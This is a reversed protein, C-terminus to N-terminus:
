SVESHHAVGQSSTESRVIGAWFLASLCQAVSETSRGLSEALDWVCLRSDSEQLRALLEAWWSNEPTLPISTLPKDRKQVQIVSSRSSLSLPVFLRVNRALGVPRDAGWWGAMTPDLPNDWTDLSFAEVEHLQSPPLLHYTDVDQMRNRIMREFISIVMMSILLEAEAVQGRQEDAEAFLSQMAKRDFLSFRDDLYKADFDWFVRRLMQWKLHNVSTMNHSVVLGVKPQSLAKNGLWRAAAAREIRKNYFLDAHYTDPLSLLFEVLRHDLFPVRTEIGQISATRDEHWLNYNQLRIFYSILDRRAPSLQHRGVIGLHDGRFLTTDTRYDRLEDAVADRVLQASRNIRSVRRLYEPWAQQPSLDPRNRAYQNSYGGCFEDAGQGNLIVKLDPLLSKAYRHLEHKYLFEFSFFPMELAWIYFELDKLSFNLEDLLVNHDYLVHHHKAGFREALATARHSDGTSFISRELISFAHLEQMHTRALSLLLASDLGGSLFVGIRAEGMLHQKMSDAILERYREICEDRTLPYAEAPEHFNQEFQWYRQLTTRERTQTLFHGGPLPDVGRVYSNLRTYLSTVPDGCGHWDLENPCDPHVLLAKLESAFILQTGVKAYFLPKIGLRDRALLLKRERRDWIAIAYMGNLDEVFASGREEYLHVVVEADSHTRFIHRSALHARIERHNYIEGNVVVMISKDENWIPQRGHEIDVISLRRFILSLHEDVHVQEDDPGRRALQRGMAQLLNRRETPSRTDQHLDIYGAFGCM